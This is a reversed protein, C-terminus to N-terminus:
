EVRWVRVGHNTSKTRWRTTPANNRRYSKVAWRIRQAETRPALFSDGVQMRGFEYTRNTRSPPAPADSVIEYLSM